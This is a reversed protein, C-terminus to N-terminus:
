APLPKSELARADVGRHEPTPACVVELAPHSARLVDALEPSAARVRAPPELPIRSSAPVGGHIAPDGPRGLPQRGDVARGSRSV